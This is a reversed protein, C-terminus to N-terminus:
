RRVRRPTPVADMRRFQNLIRQLKVDSMDGYAKHCWKHTKRRYAPDDGKGLRSCMQALLAQHRASPPRAPRSSDGCGGAGTAVMAALVLNWTARVARRRRRRPGSGHPICMNLDVYHRGSGHREPFGKRASPGARYLGSVASAEADRPWSGSCRSASAGPAVAQLPGGRTPQGHRTIKGSTPRAPATM